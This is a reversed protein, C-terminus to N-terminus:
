VCDTLPKKHQRTPRYPGEDPELRLSCLSFENEPHKQTLTVLREAPLWDVGSSGIPRGRQEWYEYALKETLQHLYNETRGVDGPRARYPVENPEPRVGSLSFENESHEQILAVLREAALWDVKPSGIPRGRRDWHEYALKETLNHLYNEKSKYSM